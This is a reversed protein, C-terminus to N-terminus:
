LNEGKQEENLIDSVIDYANALITMYNTNLGDYLHELEQLTSAVIELKAKEQETAVILAVKKM